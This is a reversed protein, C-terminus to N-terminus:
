CVPLHHALIKNKISPSINRLGEMIAGRAAVGGAGVGLMAGTTADDAYAKGYIGGELGKTALYELLGAGEAAKAEPLIMLPLSKLIEDGPKDEKIGFFKRYDQKDTVIKRGVNVSPNLINSATAALNELGEGIDALGVGFVKASRVPDSGIQYFQDYLDSAGTKLSRVGSKIHDGFSSSQSKRKNLEQQARRSVNNKPNSRRSLEQRAMEKVQEIKNDPSSLYGM